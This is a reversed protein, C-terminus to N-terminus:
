QRDAPRVLVSVPRSLERQGGALEARAIFTHFGPTLGTVRFEARHNTVPAEAVRAARDHLTLSGVTLAADCEVRVTIEAGVPFLALPKGDGQAEPSTIRLRPRPVVFAQWVRATDEGPFWCAAAPDGTFQAAPAITATRNTWSAPDGLWARAPECPRLAGDGLRQRLVDDLFTWLLHNAGAWEHKRTWQPAIAWRAEFERRRLPLQASLQEM